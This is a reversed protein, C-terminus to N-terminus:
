FSYPSCKNTISSYYKSLIKFQKLNKRKWGIKKITQVSAVGKGSGILLIEDYNKLDKVFINTKIIKKIKSKFFKYTNGEYYGKIPAYIKGNKINSGYM